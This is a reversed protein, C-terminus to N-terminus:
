PFMPVFLGQVEGCCRRPREERDRRAQPLGVPLLKARRAPHLHHEHGGPLGALLMGGTLVLSPHAAVDAESNVDADIGVPVRAKCHRAFPSAAHSPCQRVRSQKLFERITMAHTIYSMSLTVDHLRPIKIPKAVHLLSLIMRGLLWWGQVGGADCVGFYLCVVTLSMVRMNAACACRSLVCRHVEAYPLLVEVSRPSPHPHPHTM